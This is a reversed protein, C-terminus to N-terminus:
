HLAERACRAVLTADEDPFGAPPADSLVVRRVGSRALASALWVNDNLFCAHSLNRARALLRPAEARLAGVRYGTWGALWGDAPCEATAVGARPTRCAAAFAGEAPAHQRVFALLSPPYVVGDDVALLLTDPATELRLAGLVGTAAGWDERLFQVHVTGNATHFHTPSAPVLAGLAQGYFAVVDDISPEPPANGFRRALPISVVLRDYHPQLSQITRLSTARVRGSFTSLCVVLRADHSAAARLGLWGLLLVLATRMNKADLTLSAGGSRKHRKGRRKKKPAVCM